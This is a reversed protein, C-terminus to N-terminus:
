KGHFVLKGGYWGAVAAASFDLLNFLAFVIASGSQGTYVQPQVFWWIVIITTLFLVVVACLIKIEFIRTTKAKFRHVWDLLGTLIVLPMALLVFVMNIKAAMAMTNSGFIYALFTLLLAIPLVGNPIHVMIPHAHYRSLFAAGQEFSRHQLVSVIKQLIPLHSLNLGGGAAPEAAPKQAEATEEAASDTTEILVFQSKDAGCVPCEDPPEEGEHIYGCVTCEWKKM